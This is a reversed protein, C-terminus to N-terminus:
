KKTGLMSSIAGILAGLVMKFGDSAVPLIAERIVPSLFESSVMLVICIILLIGYAGLFRTQNKTM